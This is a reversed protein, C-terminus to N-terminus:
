RHKRKLIIPLFEIDSLAIDNEAIIEFQWVKGILGKGIDVSQNRGVSRSKYYVTNSDDMSVGLIVADDLMGFIAKHVFKLSDSNFNLGATKLIADEEIVDESLKYLGNSNIYLYDNYITSQIFRDTYQSVYFSPLNMAYSSYSADETNPLSIIIDNNILNSLLGKDIVDSFQYINNVITKQYLLINLQNTLVDVIEQISNYREVLLENGSIINLIENLIEILQSIDQTYIIEGAFAKTILCSENQFNLILNNNIDYVIQKLAVIDDLLTIQEDISLSFLIEILSEISIDDKEHGHYISHINTIDGLNLIEDVIKRYLFEILTNIDINESVPETVQYSTHYLDSISFSSSINEKVPIVAIVTDSVSFFSTQIPFGPQVICTPTIYCRNVLNKQGYPAVNATAQIDVQGFFNEGPEGSFTKFRLITLM